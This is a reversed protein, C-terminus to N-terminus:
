ENKRKVGHAPEKQLVQSFTFPDSLIESTPNFDSDLFQLDGEGPPKEPIEGQIPVV